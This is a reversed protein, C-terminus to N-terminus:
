PKGIDGGFTDSTSSAGVCCAASYSKYSPRLWRTRGYAPGIIFEAIGMLKTGRPSIIPIAKAGGM